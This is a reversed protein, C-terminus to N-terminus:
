PQQEIQAASVNDITVDAVLWVPMSVQRAKSCSMRCDCGQYQLCLRLVSNSVAQPTSWHPMPHQIYITKCCLERNMVAMGSWCMYARLMYACAGFNSKEVWGQKRM